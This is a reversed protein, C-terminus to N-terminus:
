QGAESEAPVALPAPLPPAPPKVVYGANAFMNGISPPLGTLSDIIEQTLAIQNEMKTAAEDRYNYAGVMLLGVVLLLIVLSKFDIDIKM